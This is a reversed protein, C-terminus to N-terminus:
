FIHHDYADIQEASAVRMNSLRVATVLDMFNDLLERKRGQKNRWIWILTVPLHITGVMKWNDASLKGRTTTGWNPPAPSLWSPLRCQSMDRWVHAM